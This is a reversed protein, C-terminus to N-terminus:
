SLIDREHDPAQISFTIPISQGPGLAGVSDFDKTQVDLGNGELHINEINVNIDTTTIM